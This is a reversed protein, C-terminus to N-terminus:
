EVTEEVDRDFLHGAGGAAPEWFVCTQRATGSFHCLMPLDRARIDAYTLEDLTAQGPVLAAWEPADSTRGIAPQSWEELFTEMHEPDETTFVDGFARQLPSAWAWVPNGDSDAIEYVGIAKDCSPGFSRVTVRDAGAGSFAIERTHTFDCRGAQQQSCASAVLALAGLFLARMMTRVGRDDNARAICSRHDFM